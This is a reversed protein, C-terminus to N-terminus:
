RLLDALKGPWFEYPSRRRLREDGAVKAALAALTSCVHEGDKFWRLGTLVRAWLTLVQPFGYRFGVLGELEFVASAVNYPWGSCPVVLVPRTLSALYLRAPEGELKRIGERRAEFLIPGWEWPFVAMVHSFESRTLARIVRGVPDTDRVFVLDYPVTDM